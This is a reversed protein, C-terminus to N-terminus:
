AALVADDEASHITPASLIETMSRPRREEEVAEALQASGPTKLRIVFRGESERTTPKKKKEWKEKPLKRPPQPLVLESV